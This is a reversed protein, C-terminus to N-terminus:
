LWLSTQDRELAPRDYIAPQRVACMSDIYIVVQYSYCTRQRRGEGGARTRWYFAPNLARQLLKDPSQLTVYTSAPPASHCTITTSDLNLQM